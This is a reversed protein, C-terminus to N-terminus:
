NDQTLKRACDLVHVVMSKGAVKHLVKPIDSKMRTGKGAALIVIALDDIQSEIAKTGKTKSETIKANM